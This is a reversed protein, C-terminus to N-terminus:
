LYQIIQQAKTQDSPIDQIINERSKIDAETFPLSKYKNLLAPLQSVDEYFHMAEDLRTKTGSITNALIHRGQYLSPYIKMKMGEAHLSHVLLLQANRILETMKSPTVDVERQINAFDRIKSEFASEGSRGAVVLPLEFGRPIHRILELVARQNIEISLDGQYLMYDGKGPLTEQQNFGHFPQVHISNAGQQTFWDQDAPSITFVHDFKKAQKAEYEELCQAERSFIISRFGGSNQALQNYYKHEVNHARLLKKRGDLENVWGTTQM